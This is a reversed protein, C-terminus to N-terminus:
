VKANQYLLLFSPGDDYAPHPNQSEVHSSLMELSVEGPPGEPGRPGVLGVESLVVNIEPPPPESFNIEPAPQELLVVVEPQTSEILVTIEPAPEEVIINIEIPTESVVVGTVTM